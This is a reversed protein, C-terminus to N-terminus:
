TAGEPSRARLELHALTGEARARIAWDGAADDLSIRWRGAPMAECTAQYLGPELRQLRLQRDLGADDSHTLLLRVSEADPETRAGRLRLVCRGEAGRLDLSAQLGLEVARRARAFDADLGAGEWHYAAPLARDGSQFAILVTAVGGVVAAGPLLFMLWFVPNLRAAPADSM